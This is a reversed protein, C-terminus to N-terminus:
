IVRMAIELRTCVPGLSAQLNPDDLEYYVPTIGGLDSPLALGRSCVIFTHEPGLAGMFLGLEFLVNDRAAMTTEGRKVLIDDASLVLIAFQYSKSESVLTELTGSSLGFVGQSWIVPKANHHLLLQIVKAVQLGEVSCGIFVRPKEKKEEPQKPATVGLSEAGTDVSLIQLAVKIQGLM